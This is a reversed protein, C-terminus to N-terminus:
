RKGMSFLVPFNMRSPIAISFFLLFVLGLAQVFYLLSYRVRQAARHVALRRDVAISNDLLAMIGHSAVGAVLQKVVLVGVVMFWSFPLEDVKFLDILPFCGLIPVQLLLGIRLTALPTM